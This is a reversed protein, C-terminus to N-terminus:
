EVCSTEMSKCLEVSAEDPIEASDGGGQRIEKPLVLERPIRESVSRKLLELDGKGGGRNESEWVKRLKKIYRYSSRTHSDAGYERLIGVRYRIKALFEVLRFHPVGVVVPLKVGDDLGQPVPSMVEEMILEGEITIVIGEPEEVGLPLQVGSM